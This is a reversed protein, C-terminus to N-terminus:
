TRGHQSLSRPPRHASGTARQLQTRPCPHESARESVTGGREGRAARFQSKIPSKRMWKTGRECGLSVKSATEVKVKGYKIQKFGRSRLRITRFHLVPGM